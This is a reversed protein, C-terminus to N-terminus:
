ILKLWWGTHKGNEDDGYRCSFTYPGYKVVTPKNDADRSVVQYRCQAFYVEGEHDYMDYSFHEREPEEILEYWPCSYATPPAHELPQKGARLRWFLRSKCIDASTPLWNPGYKGRAIRIWEVMTLCVAEDRRTLIPPGHHAVGWKEEWESVM